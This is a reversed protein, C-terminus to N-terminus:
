SVCTIKSLNSTFISNGHSGQRERSDTLLYEYGCWKANQLSQQPYIKIWCSAADMEMSPEELGWIQQAQGYIHLLGPGLSCFSGMWLIRVYGWDFIYSLAPPPRGLQSTLNHRLDLQRCCSQQLQLCLIRPRMLLLHM